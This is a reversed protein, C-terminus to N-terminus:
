LLPLTHHRVNCPLFLPLRDLSLSATALCADFRPCRDAKDGPRGQRLRDLVQSLSPRPDLNVSRCCGAAECDELIDQMAEYGPEVMIIQPPAQTHPYDQMSTSNILSM